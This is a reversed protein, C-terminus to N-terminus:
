ADNHSAKLVHLWLVYRPMDPYKKKLLSTELQWWEWNVAIYLGLVAMGVISFGGIIALAVMPDDLARLVLPVGLVISLLIKIRRGAQERPTLKEAKGM